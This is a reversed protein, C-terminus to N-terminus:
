NNSLCLGLKFDYVTDMIEDSLNQCDCEDLDVCTKDDGEMYYGSHCRCEYSGDINVCEQTCGGNDKKCENVDNCYKQHLFDLAYGDNCFCAFSGISNKCGGKVQDCGGANHSDCENIDDCSHSDLANLIFGM